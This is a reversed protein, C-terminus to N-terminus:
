SSDDNEESNEKEEKKEKLYLEPDFDDNMMNLVKVDKKITDKEKEKKESQIHM